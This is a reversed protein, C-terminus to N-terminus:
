VPIARAHWGIPQGVENAGEGQDDGVGDTLCDLRCGAVRVCRRGGQCGEQRRPLSSGDVFQTSGDPQGRRSPDPEDIPQDGVSEDVSSASAVASRHEDRQCSASTAHSSRDEGRRAAAM